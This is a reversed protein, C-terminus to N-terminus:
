RLIGAAHHLATDGYQDQADDAMFQKCLIQLPFIARTAATMMPTDGDGTRAELQDADSALLMKLGNLGEAWAISPQPAVAPFCCKAINCNCCKGPAQAATRGLQSLSLSLSPVLLLSWEYSGTAVVGYNDAPSPPTLM